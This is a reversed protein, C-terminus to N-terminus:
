VCLTFTSKFDTAPYPTGLVRHIEIQEERELEKYALIIALKHIPKPSHLVTGDKKIYVDLISQVYAELDRRVCGNHSKLYHLIIARASLVFKDLKETL